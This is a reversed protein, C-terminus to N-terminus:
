PRPSVFFLSNFLISVILTLTGLFFPIVPVKWFLLVFAVAGLFGLFSLFIGTLYAAKKRDPKELIRRSFRWLFHFNALMLVGGLFLGFTTSWCRTVLFALVTCALTILLTDRDIRKLRRVAGELEIKEIQSM